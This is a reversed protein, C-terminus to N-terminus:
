CLSNEKLDADRVNSHLASTFVDRRCNTSVCCFSGRSINETRDASVLLVAPNETRDARLNYLAVKTINLLETGFSSLEQSNEIASLRLLNM